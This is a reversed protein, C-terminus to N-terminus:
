PVQFNMIMNAHAQWGDWHAVDIWDTGGEGVWGVEQINMKVKPV